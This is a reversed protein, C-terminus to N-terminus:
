TDLKRNKAGRSERILTFSPVAFKVNSPPYKPIETPFVRFNALFKWFQLSKRGAPTFENGM